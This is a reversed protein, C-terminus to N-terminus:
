FTQVEIAEFHAKHHRLEHLICTGIFCKKICYFVCSKPPQHSEDILVPPDPFYDYKQHDFQHSISRKLREYYICVFCKNFEKTVIEARKM